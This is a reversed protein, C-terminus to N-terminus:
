PGKAYPKSTLHWLGCIPCRYPTLPRFVRDHTETIRRLRRVANEAQVQTKFTKKEECTEIWVELKRPDMM